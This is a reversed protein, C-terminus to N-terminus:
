KQSTWKAKERLRADWEEWSDEEFNRLSDRREKLRDIFFDLDDPSLEIMGRLVDYLNVQAYLVEDGIEICSLDIKVDMKKM